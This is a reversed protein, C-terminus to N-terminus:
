RSRGSQGADLHWALLMAALLGATLGFVIWDIIGM